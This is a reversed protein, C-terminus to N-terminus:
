PTVLKQVAKNIVFFFFFNKTKSHTCQTVSDFNLNVCLSWSFIEGNETFDM